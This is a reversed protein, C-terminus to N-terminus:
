SQATVNSISEFLMRPDFPKRLCHKVGMDIWKQIERDSISAATFLIIKNKELDGSDKLSQIVDLGSFEPMTVDLLVVDFTKKLILNLADKGNNVSTVDYGGSELLDNLLGTIDDNDDVVLIKV